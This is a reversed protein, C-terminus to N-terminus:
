FARASHLAKLKELYQAVIKQTNIILLTCINYNKQFLFVAVSYNV